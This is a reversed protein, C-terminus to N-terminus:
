AALRSNRRVINMTVFFFLEFVEPFGGRNVDIGAIQTSKACHNSKNPPTAPHMTTTCDTREVWVDFSITLALLSEKPEERKRHNELWNAM